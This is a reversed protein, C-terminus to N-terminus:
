IGGRGKRAAAQAQTTAIEGGMFNAILRSVRAKHPPPLDFDGLAQMCVGCVHLQDGFAVMCAHMKLRTWEWDHMCVWAYLLGLICWWRVGRRLLGIVFGVRMGRLGEPGVRVIRVGSFGM